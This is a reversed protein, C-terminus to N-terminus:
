LITCKGRRREAETGSLQTEAPPPFVSPRTPSAHAIENVPPTATIAQGIIDFFTVKEMKDPFHHETQIHSEAPISLRFFDPSFGILILTVPPQHLHKNAPSNTLIKLAEVDFVLTAIIGLKTHGKFELGKAKTQLIYISQGEIEILLIEEATPDSSGLEVPKQITLLFNRLKQKGEDTEYLARIYPIKDSNTTRKNTHM